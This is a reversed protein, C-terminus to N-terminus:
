SIAGKGHVREYETRLGVPEIRLSSPHNEMLWRLLPTLDGRSELVVEQQDGVPHLHCVQIQTEATAAPLRAQLSEANPSNGAIRASVFYRERLSQMSVASALKGRCLLVVEDCTEEMESLVHNSFIVTQGRDKAERVLGLVERRVSPDLNATPEDLIVVPAAISLVVCLALKQRMGTSMLGVRRRLDLDLREAVRLARQFDGGPHLGSWLELVGRGSFMRPLRADGPLYAVQKRAQVSQSYSDFGAILARGTTPRLFGMLLRLLTTKGAGNPGLLGLVQGAEATLSCASLAAFDGYQKSLNETRVTEQM